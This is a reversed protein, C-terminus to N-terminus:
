SKRRRVPCGALCLARKWTWQPSRPGPMAVCGEGRLNRGPASCRCPRLWTLRAGGPGARAGWPTGGRGLAQGPHPSGGRGLAQAPLPDRRGRPTSWSHPTGGRGLPQRPPPNRRARPGSRPPPGEAGSPTVPTPAGEAGWPRVPSPTGGRGLAHCPLPDRRERPGSRPVWQRGGWRCVGLGPRPVAPLGSPPRLPM